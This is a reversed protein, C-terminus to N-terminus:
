AKPGVRLFSLISELLNDGARLYVSPCVGFGWRVGFSLNVHKKKLFFFLLLFSHPLWLYCMGRGGRAAGSTALQQRVCYFFKFQEPIKKTCFHLVKM